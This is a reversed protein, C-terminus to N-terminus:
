GVDRLVSAYCCDGSSINVGAATLSLFFPPNMVAVSFLFLAM